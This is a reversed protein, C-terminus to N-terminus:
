SQGAEGILRGAIEVATGYAQGIAELDGPDEAAIRFLLARVLLQGLDPVDKVGALISEDAGEWALADAVVIASAYAAPRWYPSLDIVAPPLADHFLVNGTLDGHVLQARQHIPRLMGLLRAVHPLQELEGGPAEGWAFRDAVAWRDARSALFWPRAVRALAAHLREGVGIIAPWQGREHRGAQWTWATWRDIALEGGRGRLPHALRVDPVRLSPLVRAQWELAAISTDLPKLVIDGIRWATTSGGELAEPPGVGGFARVVEEPPPQASVERARM